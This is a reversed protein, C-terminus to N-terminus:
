ICVGQRFFSCFHKQWLNTLHRGIQIIKPVCIACLIHKHSTCQNEVEGLQRWRVVTYFASTGITVYRQTTTQLLSELSKILM